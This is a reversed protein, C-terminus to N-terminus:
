DVLKVSSNEELYTNLAQELEPVAVQGLLNPKKPKDKDSRRWLKKAENDLNWELKYEGDSAAIQDGKPEGDQGFQWTESFVIRKQDEPDALIDRLDRGDLEPPAPTETLALVTPMIDVLSVVNESTRAKMGPVSLILPINLIGESINGGHNRGNGQVSEGHDATLIVAVKRGKQADIAKLLRGVQEDAFRIEHDYKDMASEGFKKVGSHVKSPNHPGFFHVWMFFPKDPSLAEMQKIAEDATGNDDQKAKPLSDVESFVDYGNDMGNEPSLFESFGDDTVAVTQMGRRQLWWALPKRPEDELPMGFQKKSKEGPELKEEVPARLLRYKNTEYLRTWTLRRPYVGRFLSSLALSTWGGPTIAKNFRIGKKNAWEKIAPTTDRQAGYASMRDARLTDITIVVVSMPSPTSPVPVTAPDTVGGRQAADGWRCNDDIGNGPIEPAGPNVKRNFPACDGGGLFMSYGDVDPDGVNRVLKLSLRSYPQELLASLESYDTQKVTLFPYLVAAATVTKLLGGFPGKISVRPLLTVASTIAALLGTWRLAQHAGPYTGVFQTRDAWVAGAAFVLFALTGLLRYGLRLSGLYGQPYRPRPQLLLGGTFLAVGLAVSGGLALLALKRERTDLLSIVNLDEILWGAVAGGALLWVLVPLWLSRRGIAQLLAGGLAGIVLGAGLGITLAWVITKTTVQEGGLAVDVAAM